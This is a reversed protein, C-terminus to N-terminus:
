EDQILEFMTRAKMDRGYKDEIHEMSLAGYKGLSDYTQIRRWGNGKEKRRSFGFVPSITQDPESECGPCTDNRRPTGLETQARLIRRDHTTARSWLGLINSSKIRYTQIWFSLRSTTNLSVPADISM